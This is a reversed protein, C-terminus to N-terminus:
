CGLEETCYVTCFHVRPVTSLGVRYNYVRIGYEVNTFAERKQVQLESSARGAVGYHMSSYYAVCDHVSATIICTVAGGSTCLQKFYLQVLSTSPAIWLLQSVHTALDM